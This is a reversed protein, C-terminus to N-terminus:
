SESDSNRRGTSCQCKGTEESYNADVRMGHENCHDICKSTFGPNGSKHDMTSCGSLVLVALAATSLLKKM